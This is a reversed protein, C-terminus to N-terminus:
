RVELAAGATRGYVEPMYMAEALAPPFSFRGRSTSRLDITHTHMGPPLDDAFVVVRDARQEEHSVWWGRQGALVSAGRGQGLTRSVGELGAPLPVDVVVYRVRVDSQVTIDMAIPEGAAVTTTAAGTRTRLSRTVTFGQARAPLVVTAPAWEAALRYYLRGTGQRQLVVPLLSEGPEQPLGLITAMDTFSARPAVERGRFKVDLVNAGGVWARADFDPLEAEYVRAYDVLAVLAYANEQTNRWAGGRRRELLGRALKAVIPHGPQVRLLAMLVIADSRGDSGFVEDLGNGREDVHATGPLESINALLEDLLPRLGAAKPDHRHMAMLLFARAFLPLSQRLTHLQLAPGHIDRGADALAHLAIALHVGDHDGWGVPVHAIDLGRIRTELDDLARDLAAKPVPFGAEHARQLVWTAYASAYVHVDTDGPWYGFGGSGTQMTLMRDVGARMFAAPDAIGLPYDKLQHLAVLPLVRSATQEICGHPYEVLAHVADELGGLLTSTTTVTVGGHGPLVNTPIKIPIAVAQDDTLTGYAAVRESLTREAAVALPLRLGDTIPEGSGPALSAQLELEPVGPALARVKFVLRAQGGVALEATARRSSIIELTKTGPKEVLSATVSLKGAAGTNNQVIAAVEAQDGPRLQRPMAARLVLPASVVLRADNKGFRGPSSGDVLRASAIATIRFTGLNDPLKAKVSAEGSKDVALDALFVPTTEFRSRAAPPGGGQIEASAQRITPVRTGRGGLRGHGQRVVAFWPDGPRAIYPFILSRYDDRPHLEDERRSVFERQLDPVEYRTLALVAEDVAWLAVRAPLPRDQEDRVRVRLEVQEGPGATAPAAVTVALRRHEFDQRVRATARHVVPPWQGQPPGVVTAHLTVDPTWTDDVKFSFRAENDALVVPHTERVGGRALVLSGQAHNWPGRVAVELTDGPKVEDHDVRVEFAMDPEIPAGRWDSTTARVKPAVPFSAFSRAIRPSGPEAASVTLDYSGAELAPLDCGPDVGEAPLDLTCTKVKASREVWEVVPRKGDRKDIRQQWRRTVLLEVKAAAMRQGAPSVARLLVSVRQGATRHGRPTAVALYFAAPHVMFGAEAGVEQMSADQVAASVTCRQAFRTESPEGGVQLARHGPTSGAPEPGFVRAGRRDFGGSGAHFRRRYEPQEGVDWIDELGPPRFSQRECTTSTAVRSMPVPGGFYYSAHVDIATQEGILIDLRRTMAEVSFEPVRYDEVKVVADAGAGALRARVTYRGLAGDAPVPLEASFKGEASTRTQHTAVVKQLHDVLEFAVATGAALRGLNSRSFPTDVASWGVVRVKEGPRYVGRESVLRAILREGPRLPSKAAKDDDVRGDGLRPLKLHAHDDSAPDVITLVLPAVPKSDGRSGVPLAPPLMLLGSADTIGLQLLKGPAKPDFRYVRAGPVAAGTSLRLVQVSSAALSVTAIPGLDTLRFLGRVPEPVGYAQARDTLETAAVEVLVPHRAGGSLDALDLALSSWDALGSPTLTLSREIVRAPFGLEAGGGDLDVAHLEADTFVGVRVRITKVHRAEVGVTQAPGPRLIGRGDSLALTARRAILAGRTVGGAIGQGYVDRLDAPIHVSYSTGPVFQGEIVIEHGGRDGWDDPSSIELLKPRPFISIKRLQDEDVPNRLRLTIPELGCPAAPECGMRVLAQPSFTRFVMAWPTDLPLQGEEAYLGTTVSVEVESSAPWLRSPQVAFINHASDEAYYGQQERERKTAMRVRVPVPQRKAKGVGLPRAAARLHARAQALPVPRDFEVFVVVDRRRAELEDEPTDETAPDSPPTSGLVTTRPTEFSWLLQGGVQEGDPGVVFGDFLVDYHHGRPPVEDLRYVLLDPAKWSARGPLPPDFTFRNTIGIDGGLALPVVPQNFRVHIERPDETRGKPGVDIVGLARGPGLEPPAGRGVSAPDFPAQMAVEAPLGPQAPRGPSRGHCAPLLAAAAVAM